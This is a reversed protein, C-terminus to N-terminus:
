SQDNYRLLDRPHAAVYDNATENLIFNIVNNSYHNDPHNPVSDVLNYNTGEILASLGAISIVNSNKM